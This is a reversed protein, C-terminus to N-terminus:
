SGQVFRHIAPERAELHISKAGTLAALRPSRVLPTRVVKGRTASPRPVEMDEVTPLTLDSM